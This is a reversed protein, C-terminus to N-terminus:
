LKFLLILLLAVGVALAAAALRKSVPNATDAVASGPTHNAGTPAMSGPQSALNGHPIASRAANQANRNGAPQASTPQPSKRMSSSSLVTTQAGVDHEGEEFTEFDIEPLSTTDTQTQTETVEEDDGLARPVSIGLQRTVEETEHLFFWYGNAPCVEDQTGLQGDRVLHLVQEKTYPGAIINQSTRVLWQDM